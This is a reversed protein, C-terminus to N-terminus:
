DVIRGRLRPDEADESSEGGNWGSEVGAVTEYTLYDDLGTSNTDASHRSSLISVKMVHRVGIFRVDGHPKLQLDDATVEDGETDQGRLMNLLKSQPMLVLGDLSQGDDCGVIHEIAFPTNVAHKIVYGFLDKEVIHGFDYLSYGPYPKPPTIFQANPATEAKKMSYQYNLLHSAEHVLLVVLMLANKELVTLPALTPPGPPRGRRAKKAAPEPQQIKMYTEKQDEYALSNFPRHYPRGNKFPEITNIM